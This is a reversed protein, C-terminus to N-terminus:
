SPRCVDSYNGQTKVVNVFKSTNVTRCKVEIKSAQTQLTSFLIWILWISSIRIRVRLSTFLLDLDLSPQEGRRRGRLRSGRPRQPHHLLRCQHPRVSRDGPHLLHRHRPAPEACPGVRDTM